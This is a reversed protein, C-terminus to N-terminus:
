QEPNNGSATLRRITINGSFTEASIRTGGRGITFEMRQGRGRTEGPQLTLPFGSSIDGSFTELSLTAGVNAPLGFEVDGSHSNFRYTGTAAFPGDYRLDGNVSSMRIGDLRSRRLEVDGSVTEFGLDGTIEDAIVDGSVSELRLAGAARRITIDGSVTNVELRRAADHVAVDGSVTNASVDAGTGTVQIEGSVSSASVRTGSPVTLELRASGMRGGVSRTEISVRSRSFSGELRGREITALVRVENAAGTRVIIEGSVIGLSVTGGTGFAITTDIRQRLGSADRDDRGRQAELPATALLGAALLALHVFSHSRM